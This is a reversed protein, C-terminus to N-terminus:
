VGVLNVYGEYGVLVRHGDVSPAVSLPKEPGLPVGKAATEYDVSWFEIFYGSSYQQHLASYLAADAANAATKAAAGVTASVAAGVAAGLIGGM